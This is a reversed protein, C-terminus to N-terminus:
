ASLSAVPSRFGNEGVSAFELCYGGDASSGAVLKADFGLATDLWQRMQVFGKSNLQVPVRDPGNTICDLHVSVRIRHGDACEGRVVVAFERGCRHTGHRAIETALPQLVLRPVLRRAVAEDLDIRVPVRGAGRAVYIDLIRWVHEMEEALTVLARGDRDLSARVLESLNSIVSRAARADSTMVESAISLADLFMRPNVRSRLTATEAALLDARLQAAKLAKRRLITVQWQAEFILVMCTYLLSNIFTSMVLMQGFSITSGVVRPLVLVAVLSWGVWFFVIGVAAYSAVLLPLNRVRPRLARLLLIVGPTMIAGILFLLGNPVLQWWSSYFPEGAAIRRFGLGIHYHVAVGWWALAGVLFWRGRGWPRLATDSTGNSLPHAEALTARGEANPDADDRQSDLVPQDSVGSAGVVEPFTVEVRFTGPMEVGVKLEAADGFVTSLRARVGGLGIRETIAPQNAGEGAGVTNEVVISVEGSRRQIRIRILGGTMQRAIGHQIANEVLPQVLLPPVYTVGADPDIELDVDLRDRFRAQQIRLYREVLQLEDDLPVMKDGRRDFSEKLLARLDALVGRAAAVDERMLGSAVHLTNFLFHPDLQASLAAKRAKSLEGEYRATRTDERSVRGFNLIVEYLVAMVAFLLLSNFAWTSLTSALTAGVSDLTNPWVFIRLLASMASLVLWYAIGIPAYRALRAALSHEPGIFSRFAVYVGLSLVAGIVFPAMTRPLRYWESLFPAGTMIHQMWVDGVVIVLIASWGIAWITLLSRQDVPFLDLGSPQNSASVQRM